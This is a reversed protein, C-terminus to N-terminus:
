GRQLSKKRYWWYVSRMSTKKLEEFFPRIKFFWQYALHAKVGKQFLGVTFLKRERPKFDYKYSEQGTLFDFESLERDFANRILHVLLIRGPSYKSFCEDYASIVHFFKRAYQFCLFAGAMQNHLYLVPISLWGLPFARKAFDKYFNRTVPEDFVCDQGKVIRYKRANWSIIQDILRDIDNADIEKGLFFNGFEKSLRNLQRSTDARFSKKLSKWYNEWSGEVPIYPGVNAERWISRQSSLGSLALQFASWNISDEPFGNLVLFDWGGAKFLAKLASLIVHARDQEADIIFDKYDTIKNSIFALQSFFERQTIMLPFIGIVENEKRVLAIFLRHHAGFNKWWTSIWEFTLFITNSGSRELLKNWVNELQDLQFEETLIQVSLPPASSFRMASEPARAPASQVAALNRDSLEPFSPPQFDPPSKV